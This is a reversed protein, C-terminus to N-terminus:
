VLKSELSLLMLYQTHSLIWIYVCLLTMCRFYFMFIPYTHTWTYIYNAFVYIQKQFHEPIVSLKFTRWAIFVQINQNFCNVCNIRYKFTRQHCCLKLMNNVCIYEDPWLDDVHWTSVIPHSFQISTSNQGFLWKHITHCSLRSIAILPHLINFQEFTPLISQHPKADHPGPPIPRMTVDPQCWPSAPNAAHLRCSPKMTVLSQCWSSSPQCWSSQLINELTTSGHLMFFM